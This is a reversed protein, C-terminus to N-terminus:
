TRFEIYEKSNRQMAFHKAGEKLGTQMEQETLTRSIGNHEDICYILKESGVVDQHMWKTLGANHIRRTLDIHEYKNKYNTDFGGVTEVCHRTFYMMCGNSLNHTKIGDIVNKTPYFTRCLHHQGSEVYPKWWDFSVPYTDDDFLFVHDCSETLQLCMNKVRSIGAREKFAYDANCYITDSADDVVFIDTGKPSFQKIMKYAFWFSEPRNRTSIAIAISPTM